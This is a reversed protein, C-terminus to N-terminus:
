LKPAFRFYLSRISVGEPLPVQALRWASSAIAPNSLDILQANLADGRIIDQDTPSTRLRIDREEARRTAEEVQAKIANRRYQIHAARERMYANYVEANWKQIMIEAQTDIARGRASYLDYMAAGKLFQGQGRLIDGQVTSGPIVVDQAQRGTVVAAVLCLATVLFCRMMADSRSIWRPPM